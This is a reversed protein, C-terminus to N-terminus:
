RGSSTTTLGFQQPNWAVAGEEEFRFSVPRGSAEMAAQQVRTRLGPETLCLVYGGGGAGLLKAGRGGAALVQDVLSDVRRSSILPSLRKKYQWDKRILRGLSALDNLTMSSLAEEASLKIQRLSEEAAVDGQAYRRSQDVIINSHQNIAGSYILVSSYELERVFEKDLRLPQVEVTRSRGFRMFNFGGFTSAYQDQYGGPIEMVDRELHVALQAVEYRSLPQRCYVSMAKVLAVVAASSSGLGSGAPTDSELLVRVDWLGFHERVADILMSALTRPAADISPDFAVAGSPGEEDSVTCYVYRDITASLVCGGEDEAFPEVDTGGGAFSLRLPARARVYM